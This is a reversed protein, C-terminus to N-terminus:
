QRSLLFALLDRFEKVTLGKELEDPMLSVNSNHQTAIQGSPIVVGKGDTMLLTLTGDSHKGILVGSYSDGTKTEVTHQVFQPAIEKSPNLISDIIRERNAARGIVSLDPGSHGGHDEVRHCQACGVTPDFFLRRGSEVDGKDRLAKRWEEDSAPRLGREATERPAFSEFPSMDRRADAIELIVVNSANLSVPEASSKALREAAAAYARLLEPTVASGEIAGPLAARLERRDDEGIWLVAALRVETNSDKLGAKLVWEAPEYRGRRLALLGGLRVAPNSHDLLEVAKARFAPRSLATVAASRIFPDSDSLASVLKPLDRSAGAELLELMRRREASPKAVTEPPRPAASSLRWIRGKSHVSYDRDVWDTFYVSGDPAAAVAVPRFNENGQAVIEREARLSAGTSRLHYRELRHDGWSTVFLSLQLGRGAPSAETRFLTRNSPALMTRECDLVGSPAEGTGAVMPLTGPLEGNWATFPHLGSRGYRFRYGYDGGEVVDILRCPPRSDPDNDVCFLHGAGNFELGFANWFGTAIHRLQTGDAKCRFVNGGEGGGSHSMGDSGKLTYREGLNEGTGLYLWGDPSFAIGGLGNHPYDGRTEMTVIPKQEDCVGDGDTDRLIVVGNRHVLYLEEKPSFALSMAARFGQAFVKVEDFAGNRDTDVFVKVLDSKPGPYDPKPFHTHSEIVFIRHRADVAIGVPTVIDPEAAFLQLRLGPDNVVPQDIRPAAMGTIACLYLVLYRTPRKMAHAVFILPGPRMLWRIECGIAIIIWNRALQQPAEFVRAAGAGAIGARVGVGDPLVGRRSM